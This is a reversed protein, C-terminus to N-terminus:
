KFVVIKLLELLRLQFQRHHRRQHLLDLCANVMRLQQCSQRLHLRITHHPSLLHHNACHVTKCVDLQFRHMELRLSLWFHRLFLPQSLLVMLHALPIM